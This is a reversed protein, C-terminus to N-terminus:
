HSLPGAPTPLGPGQKSDGYWGGVGLRSTGQTNHSYPPREFSGCQLLQDQCLSTEWPSLSQIRPDGPPPPLPDCGGGM